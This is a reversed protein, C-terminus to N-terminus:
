PGNPLAQNYFAMSRELDLQAHHRSVMGFFSVLVGGLAIGTGTAVNATPHFNENPHVFVVVAGAVFAAGGVLDLAAGRNYAARFARYYHRTSDSGNALLDIRPAFAGFEAIPTAAAGEVVRSPHHQISLFCRIYPCGQAQAVAPPSISAATTVAILELTLQKIPLM